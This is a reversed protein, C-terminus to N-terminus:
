HEPKLHLQHHLAVELRESVGAGSAVEVGTLHDTLQLGHPLQPTTITAAAEGSTACVFGSRGGVRALISAGAASRFTLRYRPADSTNGPGFAPCSPAPGAPEAVPLDNIDRAVARVTAADVVTVNRFSRHPNSPEGPNLARFTPRIVSVQLWRASSPVLSQAPRHQHWAVVTDVRIAYRSSGDLAISVFLERPGALPSPIPVALIEWWYENKGATGGYGRDVLRRAPGHKALYALLTNPPETSLWYAYRDVSKASDESNVPRGLKKALAPPPAAVRRTSPPLAVAALLAEAISGAVRDSYLATSPQAARANQTSGGCGQAILVL